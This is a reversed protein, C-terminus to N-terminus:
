STAIVVVISTRPLIGTALLRFDRLVRYDIETTIKGSGRVWKQGFKTNVADDFENRMEQMQRSMHNEFKKIM